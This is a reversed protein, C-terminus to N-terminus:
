LDKIVEEQEDQRQENDEVHSLLHNLDTNVATIEKKISKELSKFMGSLEQKLSWIALLIEPNQDEPGDSDSLSTM